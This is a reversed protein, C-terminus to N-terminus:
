ATYPIRIAPDGAPFDRSNRTILLTNHRQAAAFIIADPLKLRWKRRIEVALVAITEDLPIVTFHGGLLSKAHAEEESSACGVMVEMWSIISIFRKSYRTIEALARADGRLFDILINTDFVPTM